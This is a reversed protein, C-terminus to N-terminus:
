IINITNSAQRDDSLSKAKIEHRHLGITSGVVPNMLCKELIGRTAGTAIKTLGGCPPYLFTQFANISIAGRSVRPYINCCPVLGLLTSSNVQKSNLSNCQMGSLNKMVLSMVSEKKTEM